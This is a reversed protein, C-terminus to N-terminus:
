LRYTCILQYRKITCLPLILSGINGSVCSSFVGEIDLASTSLFLSDAQGPIQSPAALLPVSMAASPITLVQCSEDTGAASGHEDGIASHPQCVLFALLGVLLIAATFLSTKKKSIM